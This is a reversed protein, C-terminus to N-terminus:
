NLSLDLESLSHDIGLNEDPEVSGADIPTVNFAVKKKSGIDDSNTRKTQFTKDGFSIDSQIDSDTNQLLDLTSESLGINSKKNEPAELHPTHTLYFDQHDMIENTKLEALQQNSKERRRGKMLNSLKKEAAIHPVQTNPNDKSKGLTLTKEISTRILSYNCYKKKNMNAQHKIIDMANKFSQKPIGQCDVTVGIDEFKARILDELRERVQSINRDASHQWDTSRSPEVVLKGIIKEENSETPHKSFEQTRSHVPSQHLNARKKKKTGIDYRDLHSQNKGPVTMLVEINGISEDHSRYHDLQTELQAANSIGDDQVGTPYGLKTRPKIKPKVMSTQKLHISKTASKNEIEERETLTDHSRKSEATEQNNTKLESLRSWFSEMQTQITILSESIKHELNSSIENIRRDIKDDVKQGNDEEEVSDAPRDDPKDGYYNDRITVVDLKKPRAQVQESKECHIGINDAKKIGIEDVICLHTSDTTNHAIITPLEANKMQFVVEFLRNYKEEYFAKQKLLAAIENEVQEKFKEFKNYIERVEQDNGKNEKMDAHDTKDKLMKETANLREKLEKIESQMQDTEPTKDGNNPTKSIDNHRRKIHSNLYDENLFAKVCKDCRFASTTKLSQLQNELVQIYSKLEKIETNDLYRKCFLLYEVALQSMRFVKVFNTDLIEAHETDLVYGVVISLFQEVTAVDREKIVRDIDILCIKNKDVVPHKQKDFSFGSDWALRIYDYHWRFDESLM